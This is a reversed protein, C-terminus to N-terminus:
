TDCPDMHIRIYGYGDTMYGYANMHTQKRGCPWMQFMHQVFFHSVWSDDWTIIYLSTLRYLNHLLQRKCWIPMTATFGVRVLLNHSVFWGSLGIFRFHFFTYCASKDNQVVNTQKANGISKLLWSWKFLDSYEYTINYTTARLSDHDKRPGDQSSALPLM